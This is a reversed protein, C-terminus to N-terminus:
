SYVHYQYFDFNVDHINGDSEPTCLIEALVQNDGVVMTEDLEPGDNREDTHKAQRTFTNGSILITAATGDSHVDGKEPTDVVLTDDKAKKQLM